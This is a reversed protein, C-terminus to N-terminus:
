VHARGIQNQFVFYDTPGFLTLNNPPSDLLTGCHRAVVLREWRTLGNVGGMGNGYLSKGQEEWISLVRTLIPLPVAGPWGHRVADAAGLALTAAALLALGALAPRWHRRTRRLHREHRATRGCEPCTLGPLGTLDYWCRPCRLRGRPRDRFLGRLLLAAGPAALTAAIAPFLWTWPM